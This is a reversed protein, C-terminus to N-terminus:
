LMQHRELMDVWLAMYDGKEAHAVDRLSARDERGWERDAPNVCDEYYWDHDALRVAYECLSITPM